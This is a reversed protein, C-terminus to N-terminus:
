KGGTLWGLLGGGGTTTEEKEEEEPQATHEEVFARVKEVSETTDMAYDYAMDFFVPKCFVPMPLVEAMVMGADPEHLRLLLPRDTSKTTSAAASAGNVGGQQLYVAAKVAVMVSSIPLKELEEIYEDANPMDDECAAIEEQARKSLKAAQQLLGLAAGHKQVQSYYYWAMHYCKLARLRLCNAQVQLAFEDEDDDDEDAKPLSLLSNAHQLLADYVHVREAHGSISELLAQTHDMVRQTKQYQLYGKWALLNNKKAQISPGVAQAYGQLATNVVDTADDLVSLIELFSKESTDTTTATQQQLSQCKLLLVRLEKNDLVLDRGRFTVAIEDDGQVPTATTSPGQPEEVPINEGAQKLEYHCYRFLPRLVTDARTLFLDQRELQKTDDQPGQKESPITTQSLTHCLSM